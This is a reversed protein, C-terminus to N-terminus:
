IPAYWDQCLSRFLAVDGDLYELGVDSSDLISALDDAITQAFELVLPDTAEWLDARDSISAIRQTLAQHQFDIAALLEQVGAGAAAYVADLGLITQECALAYAEEFAPNARPDEVFPVGDDSEQQQAVPTVPEEKDTRILARLGLTVFALAAVCGLAVLPRL